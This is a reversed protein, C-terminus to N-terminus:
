LRSPYGIMTSALLRAAFRDALGQGRISEGVEPVELEVTMRAGM